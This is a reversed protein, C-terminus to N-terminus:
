SIPDHSFSHKKKLGTTKNVKIGSTGATVPSFGHQRATRQGAAVMESCRTNQFRQRLYEFKSLPQACTELFGTKRPKTVQM